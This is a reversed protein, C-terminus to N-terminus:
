VSALQSPRYQGPISAAESTTTSRTNRGDAAIYPSMRVQFLPYLERVHRAVSHLHNRDYSLGEARSMMLVFWKPCMTAYGIPMFAPTTEYEGQVGTGRGTEEANAVRLPGPPITLCDVILDLDALHAALIIAVMRSGGCLLMMRLRREVFSIAEEFRNTKLFRVAGVLSRLCELDETAKTYLEDDLYGEQSIDLAIGLVQSPLEPARFVHCSTFDVRRSLADTVAAVRYLAPRPTLESCPRRHAVSRWKQVLDGSLKFVVGDSAIVEFDGGTFDPHVLRGEPLTALHYPSPPADRGDATHSPYCLRSLAEFVSAFSHFLTALAEFVNPKPDDATQPM